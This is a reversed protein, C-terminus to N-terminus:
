EETEGESPLEIGTLTGDIMRYAWDAANLISEDHTVIVICKGDNKALGVLIDVVTKGTEADLNGTPEDALIIDPDNALARAIAVRQKEGGSIRNPKSKQLRRDIGMKELLEAARQKENPKPKGCIDMPLVANELVTLAPILNFFQFVFGVHEQRYKILDADSRCIDDGFVNIEGSDPKELSGVLYLFTTKGSGSPGVIVSVEGKRARFTVDKVAEVDGAKVKFTKNLSEVDLISSYPM